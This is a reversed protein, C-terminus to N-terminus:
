FEFGNTQYYIKLKLSAENVKEFISAKKISDKELLYKNAIDIYKKFLSQYKSDIEYNKQNKHLNIISNFNSIKIVPYVYQKLNIIKGFKLSYLGEINFNFRNSPIESPEKYTLVESNFTYYDYIFNISQLEPKLEENWFKYANSLRDENINLVSFTEPNFFINERENNNNSISIFKEGFEVSGKKLPLIAAIYENNLDNKGMSIPISKLWIQDQLGSTKHTYFLFSDIQPFLYKALMLITPNVIPELSIDKNNIHYSLSREIKQDFETEIKTFEDNIFGTKPKLVLKVSDSVTQLLQINGLVIKKEEYINNLFELNSLDSNSYKKIINKLDNDLEVIFKYFPISVTNKIYYNNKSSNSEITLVPYLGILPLDNKLNLSIKVKNKEIQENIKDKCNVSLPIIIPEKSNNNFYIINNVLEDKDVESRKELSYKLKKFPNEGHWIFTSEIIKNKNSNIFENPSIQYENLILESQKVFNNLYMNYASDIEKKIPMWGNIIKQSLNSDLLDGSKGTLSYAKVFDSKEIAKQIDLVATFAIRQKESNNNNEIEIKRNIDKTCEKIIKGQFKALGIIRDAVKDNNSFMYYTSEETVYYIPEGETFFVKFFARTNGGFGNQALVEYNAWTFCSNAFSYSSSYQSLFKVSNPNRFGGNIKLFNFGNEIQNENLKFQANIFKYSFIFTVFLYIKIYKM